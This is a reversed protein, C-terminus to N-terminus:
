NASPNAGAPFPSEGGIRHHEALPATEAPTGVSPNAAVPFTSEHNKEVNYRWDEYRWNALSSSTESNAAMSSPFDVHPQYVVVTQDNTNAEPSPNAAMPFQSQQAIALTAVVLLVALAGLTRKM